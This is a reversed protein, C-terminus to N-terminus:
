YNKLNKEISRKADKERLAQRKDYQKKGKAIAIEVKCLGQELYVKTPIITLNEGQIKNFIRIIEKKHLLLKRTRTENHNFINGEKYKAIHMNIIFMEEDRILCYSDKINVKNARVSKIETGHLVIGAEYTDLLFYDHQAKKNRAIIKM